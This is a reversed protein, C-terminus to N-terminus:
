VKDETNKIDTLMIHLSNNKINKKLSVHYQRDYVYIINDQLTNYLETADKDSDMLIIFKISDNYSEACIDTDESLSGVLGYLAMLQDFFSKIIQDFNIKDCSISQMFEVRNM